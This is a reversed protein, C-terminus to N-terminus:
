VVERWYEREEAAREANEHAEIDSHILGYRGRLENLISDLTDCIDSDEEVERLDEIVTAIDDVAWQRHEMIEYMDLM